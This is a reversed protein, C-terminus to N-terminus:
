TEEIALREREMTRLTTRYMLPAFLVGTGLVLVPPIALLVLGPLCAVGGAVLLAMGWSHNMEHGLEATERARLRYVWRTACVLLAIHAHGVILASLAIWEGFDGLAAVSAGGSVVLVLAWVLFHITLPAVLSLAALPLAAGAREWSTALARVQRLPHSAELRALDAAPNGSLLVRAGPFLRARAVVRALAGVILAVPWAGLLLVTSVMHAGGRDGEPPLFSVLAVLFATVGLLVGAGGGFARGIRHIVVRRAVDVAAVEQERQECLEAVRQRLVPDLSRYACATM